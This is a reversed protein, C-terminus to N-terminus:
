SSVSPRKALRVRMDWLGIMGLLALNSFLLPAFVPAGYLFNDRASPSPGALDAALHLVFGLIGVVLQGAMLWQCLVLFSPEGERILAVLLFSVAFASAFVPVWESSEFFGNQAHDGLSIAFNGVFGGMALFVVWRGWAETELTDMRNLLLLFGVGVYSLPAAFPASYVLSKLTQEAFFSSGLHLVMGAGGVVIAAGGVVLGLARHVGRHFKRKVLGTVLLLPAVLSFFIPIWEAQDAFDNVSHALYIDLALFALNGVAFVEVLWPRLLHRGTSTM